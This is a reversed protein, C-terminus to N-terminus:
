HESLITTPVREGAGVNEFQVNGLLLV